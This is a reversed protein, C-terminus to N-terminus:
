AKNKQKDKIYQIFDQLVLYYYDSKSKAHTYCVIQEEIVGLHIIDQKYKLYLPSYQYLCKAIHVMLLQPPNDVSQYWKNFAEFEKSAFFDISVFLMIIDASNRRAAIIEHRHLGAQIMGRYWFSPNVDGVTVHQAAKLFELVQTDQNKNYEILVNM